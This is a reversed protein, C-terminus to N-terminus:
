NELPQQPKKGELEEVVQCYSEMWDLLRFLLRQKEETHEGITNQTILKRAEELSCIKVDEIDPGKTYQLGETKMRILCGLYGKGRLYPFLSFTSIRARVLLRRDIKIAGLPITNILKFSAESLGLERKLINLTTLYINEEYIGGQSFTWAGKNKVLLVKKNLPDVLGMVATPRYGLFNWRRIPDIFFLFLAFLVLGTELVSWLDSYWSIWEMM